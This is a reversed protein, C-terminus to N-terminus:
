FLNEYDDGTADYVRERRVAVLQLSLRGFDNGIM